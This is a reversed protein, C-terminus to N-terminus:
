KGDTIGYKRFNSDNKARIKEYVKRYNEISLNYINHFLKQREEYDPYLLNIVSEYEVTRSKNGKWFVELWTEFNKLVCVIKSDSQTVFGVPYDNNPYIRDCIFAWHDCSFEYYDSYTFAILQKLKIEVNLPYIYISNEYYPEPRVYHMVDASNGIRCLCIGTEMGVSTMPEKGWLYIDGNSYEKLFLKYSEPLKIGLREEETCIQEETAWCHPINGDLLEPIMDLPKAKMEEIIRRVNEIGM